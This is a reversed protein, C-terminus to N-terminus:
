VTEIELPFSLQNDGVIIMNKGLPMVESGNADVISFCKCANLKFGLMKRKGVMLFVREFAVVQKLPAGAIAKPPVAYVIVVESGNTTGVNRVVVEFSMTKDHCDLHKLQVTPCSVNKDRHMRLSSQASKLELEFKTYSLGFGFPFVQPGDHFKYTRGPYGLSPNPRLQMSKMPLQDVYNQPYWTLPLRGGSKM